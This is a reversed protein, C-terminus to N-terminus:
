KIGTVAMTPRVFVRTEGMQKKLATGRSGRLGRLREGISEERGGRAAGSCHVAFDLAPWPTTDPVNGATQPLSGLVLIAMCALIAM